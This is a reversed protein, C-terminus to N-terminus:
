RYVTTIIVASIAETCTIDFYSNCVWPLTFVKQKDAGLISLYILQFFYFYIDLFYCSAISSIKELSGIWLIAVPHSESYERIITALLFISSVLCNQWHCHFTNTSLSLLSHFQKHWSNMVCRVSSCILNTKKNAVM